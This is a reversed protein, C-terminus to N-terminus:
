PSQGPGRRSSFPQVEIENAVQADLRDNELKDWDLYTMTEEKTWERSGTPTICRKTMQKWDLCWDYDAKSYRLPLGMAKRYQQNTKISGRPQARYWAERAATYRQYIARPDDYRLVPAAPPTEATAPAATAQQLLEVHQLPCSKSTM